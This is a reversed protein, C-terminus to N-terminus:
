NAGMVQNRTQGGQMSTLEGCCVIKSHVLRNRGPLFRSVIRSIILSLSCQQYDHHSPDSHSLDRTKDTPKASATM